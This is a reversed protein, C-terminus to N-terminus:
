PLDIMTSVAIDATLYDGGGVSRVVDPGHSVVKFGALARLKSLVTAGLANLAVSAGSANWTEAILTVRFTWEVKGTQLMTLDSGGGWIMVCPPATGGPDDSVVVPSLGTVLAARAQVVTQSM